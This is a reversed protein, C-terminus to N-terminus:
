IRECILKPFKIVMWMIKFNRYTIFCRFSRPTPPFISPQPTITPTPINTITPQPTPENTPTATPEATPEVTPEPTPESTPFLTPPIATPEATPEPTPELTPTATPISNPNPAGKTATGLSTISGTRDPDRGMSVGAGPDATYQFQDLINGSADFLVVYDGGNNLVNQMEFYPYSVNDTNLNTLLKKASSGSDSVFDLDDDLYYTKIYDASNQDNYFEVWEFESVPANSVFENIVLASALSPFALFGLLFAPLVKKM